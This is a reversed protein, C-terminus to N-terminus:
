FAVALRLQSTFLIKLRPSLSTTFQERKDLWCCLRQKVVWPVAKQLRSFLRPPTCNIEVSRWELQTPYSLFFQWFNSLGVIKLALFAVFAFGERAPNKYVSQAKWVRLMWQGTQTAWCAICENKWPEIIYKNKKESWCFLSRQESNRCSLLM